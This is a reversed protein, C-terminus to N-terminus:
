SPWNGNIMYHSSSARARVWSSRPPFQAGRDLGSRGRAETSYRELLKECKEYTSKALRSCTDFALQAAVFRIFAEPWLSSDLGYDDSKSVYRIYMLELDSFWFANEDMYQLETLPNRFYEDPAIAVLRVFDVPKDFARRFGFDPEVSPSYTAEVTRTAFTFSSAGLCYIPVDDSGWADTLVRQAETADTLTALRREEMFGLAMNFCRLKISPDVPM